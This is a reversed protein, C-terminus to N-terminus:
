AEDAGPDSGPAPDPDEAPNGSSSAAGSDTDAAPAAEEPTAEPTSEVTNGVPVVVPSQVDTNSGHGVHGSGSDGFDTGAPTGGGGYAGYDCATPAIMVAAAAASVALLRRVRINRSTSRLQM